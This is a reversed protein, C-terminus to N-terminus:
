RVNKARPDSVTALRLQERAESELGARAYLVALLLSDDPHLRQASALEEHVAASVIRFRAPPDPPTPLITIGAPSRAEVQWAYTRGRPIPRTPRWRPRSLPESRAVEEEGDFVAVVYTADKIRPWTFSPTTDDIVIGAPELHAHESPGRLPEREGRLQALDDPFPLHGSEITRDVLQNWNPNTYRPAPPVPPAGSARVVGGGGGAGSNPPSTRLLPVLLFAAVLAAAAALWIWRPRAPPRLPLLDQADERCLDCEEIHARTAPDPNGDVYAFLEDPTLHRPPEAAEGALLEHIRATQRAIEDETLHKSM